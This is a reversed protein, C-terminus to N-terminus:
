VTRFGSEPSARMSPTLAVRSGMSHAVIEVRVGAADLAHIAQILEPVAYGSREIDAAYRDFKGESSWSFLAAACRWQTDLKLQAARMLATRFTQNYGHIFLLARDCGPMGANQAAVEHAFGDMDGSIDCDVTRPKPGDASRPMQGPAYAGPIAVDAVGCHSQSDWHLGYGFTSADAERDTAFVVTQPAPLATKQVWVSRFDDHRLSDSLTCATLGAAVCLLVAARTAGQRM